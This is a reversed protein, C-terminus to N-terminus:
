VKIMCKYKRILVTIEAEQKLTIHEFLVFVFLGGKAYCVYTDYKQQCRTDWHVLLPMTFDLIFDLFPCFYM